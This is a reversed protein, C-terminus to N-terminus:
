LSRRSRGKPHYQGIEEIARGDRKARSDMSSSVTTRPVSRAASAESSNQYGRTYTFEQLSVGRSSVRSTVPSCPCSTPVMAGSSPHFMDASLLPCRVSLLERCQAVSLCIVRAPVSKVQHVVRGRLVIYTPSELCGLTLGRTVTLSSSTLPIALEWSSM